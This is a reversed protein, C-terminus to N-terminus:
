LVVIQMTRMMMTLMMMMMRVVRVDDKPCGSFYQSLLLVNIQQLFRVFDWM